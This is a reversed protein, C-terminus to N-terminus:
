VEFAIWREHVLQLLSQFAPLRRMTAIFPDHSALFPYNIFGREVALTLWRLAPDGLGARACAHALFRPLVDSTSALAHRGAVEVAQSDLRGHELAEAFLLAISAAATRRVDLPFENAIRIAAEDRRNLALVWVYFLRAMPNGPDMEFMQRYPDVAPGTDGELIDAWAPMCRTVPTLPDIDVLRDLLPRAAAVRGSILYCNSLCLLTDPDSPALRHAAALNRVAQQVRGMSYDIWGRLQLGEASGPALQLVRDACALAQELSRPGTDIGAERYQLYALGLAAHLRADDGAIALGQRLLQVARDISDQRWRWSEHRARLYCEYALPDAFPYEAFGVAEDGTLQVKLAETVKRALVDQVAFIDALSGDHKEAWVHGDLETDFLQATIRMREGHRQVSGDLVYRVGLAARADRPESGSGSFMAASTRSTVRLAQVRALATLIEAALAEALYADGPDPSLNAFPLVAISNASVRARQRGRASAPPPSRRPGAARWRDIESKFAYVSGRARHMHRHVPLGEEAEWRRVTRVGRGLYAAIEKWSDLRGATADTVAGNYHREVMPWSHGYRGHGTM